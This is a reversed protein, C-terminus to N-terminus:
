ARCTTLETEYINNIVEFIISTNKFMPETKHQRIKDTRGDIWEFEFGAFGYVVKARIFDYAVIDGEYIEKGNKDHLDTYQGVTNTFVDYQRVSKPDYIASKDTADVYAFCLYGYVWEGNDIRKGRFKIEREM